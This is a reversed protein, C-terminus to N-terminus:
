HGHTTTKRGNHQQNQFSEIIRIVERAAADLSYSQEFVFGATETAAVFEKGIDPQLGGLSLPITRGFHNALAILSMFGKYRFFRPDSSMLLLQNVDVAHEFRKVPVVAMNAIGEFSSGILVNVAVAIGRAELFKVLEACALGVYLMESGSVNYNGGAMLNLVISPYTNDKNKHYAYVNKVVTAAQKQGLEINLQSVTQKMPTAQDIRYAPFLGMAARDFSFVGLGRDNYALKPKPMTNSELAQLYRNLHERIKPQIEKLLQLGSFVKPNELEFFSSPPPDGYWSSEEEVDIIARWRIEDATSQNQKTLTESDVFDFFQKTGSFKLYNYGQGGVEVQQKKPKM